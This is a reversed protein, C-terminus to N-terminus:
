APRLSLARQLQQMYVPPQLLAIEMLEPRTSPARSFRQGRAVYTVAVHTVAKFVEYYRLTQHDVPRGGATLYAAMFAEWPMRAEVAPKFHALDKAPDGLCTVEWDLLATLRGEHALMNAFTVDGHVLRPPGDRDPLNARLWAMGTEVAPSAIGINNRIFSEWRDVLDVVLKRL